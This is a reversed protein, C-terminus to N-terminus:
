NMSSAGKYLSISAQRFIAYGGLWYWGWPVFRRLHDTIPGPIVCPYDDNGDVYSFVKALSQRGLFIADFVTTTAPSSGANLAFPARPTEIFRFMQFSGLEGNFIDDPASYARPENWTAAGTQGMLDYAQDPHVFAIYHGDITPVNARRLNARARRVDSAVLTNKPTVTGPSNAVNTGDGVCYSVNTANALPIQALTDLSIGANYGVVNAVLNDWDLFSTGRGLATTIVANGYEGLTVTIQSASMPVASVDTSEALPTSVVSLDNQISFTVSSGPMAQNSPRIDAVADFYLEPRLNYYALLDYAQQDYPLQAQGTFADPM